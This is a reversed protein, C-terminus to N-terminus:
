SIFVSCTKLWKATESCIIVSAHQSFPCIPCVTNVPTFCKEFCVGPHMEVTHMNKINQLIDKGLMLDTIALVHCM